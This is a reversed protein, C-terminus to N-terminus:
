IKFIVELRNYNVDPRLFKIEARHHQVIRKVISLGLGFGQQTLANSGRAFSAFLDETDIVDPTKGKNALTVRIYEQQQIIKIDVEKNESYLYANKLLNGFAIKLLAEDGRVELKDENVTQNIIEFHVKFDTHAKKLFEVSTFIIEDIRVLSLRDFQKDDDLKSLILLSTVIDSLQRTDEKISHIRKDIQEPLEPLQSLNELQVSIRSLPTRLEHSASGVFSKQYQFSRDIRDIMVNFARTLASIEDKSGSEQLRLSLNNESIKQVNKALTDLPQLAKRTFYFSLAWVLGTGILFCGISLYALYSLKRHGSYDEASILVIYNRGEFPAQMGVIDYEDETKYLYNKEQITRLLTEDWNIVADDISSYILSLSDNFILIKENYLKYITNRDIVRLIQYDGEHLEMLLKLTTQAKASLRAEVQEKRFNSSLLYVMLLVIGLIVSFLISFSLSFRQKLNM